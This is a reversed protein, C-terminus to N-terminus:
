NIKISINEIRGGTIPLVSSYVNCSNENKLFETPIIMGNSAIYDLEHSLSVCIMFYASAEKNEIDSIVTEHAVSCKYEQLSSYEYDKEPVFGILVDVTADTKDVIVTESNVFQFEGSLPNYELKKM